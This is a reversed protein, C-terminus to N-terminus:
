EVEWDYGFGEWQLLWYRLKRAKEYQWWLTYVYLGCLKTKRTKWYFTNVIEYKMYEKTEEKNQDFIKKALKMNNVCSYRKYMTLATYYEM